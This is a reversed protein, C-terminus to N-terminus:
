KPTVTVKVAQKESVTRWSGDAQQGEVTTRLAFCSLAPAMWVTMRMKFFGYQAAVTPYNLIVDEGVVKGQPGAARCGSNVLTARETLVHSENAASYVVAFDDAEDDPSLLFRRKLREITNSASLKAGWLAGELPQDPASWSLVVESGAQNYSTM